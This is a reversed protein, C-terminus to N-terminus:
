DFRKRVEEVEKPRLVKTDQAEKKTCNRLKVIVDLTEARVTKLNFSGLLEYYLVKKSVGEVKQYSM